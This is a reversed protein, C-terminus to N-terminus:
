KLRLDRGTEFKLLKMSGFRSFLREGYCDRIEKLTLNSIVICKRRGDCVIDDIIGTLMDQRSDTLKETGLEDLVLLDADHVIEYLKARRDLAREDDGYYLLTQMLLPASIYVAFWGKRILEAATLSALYTKGSGAQGYMFLSKEEEFNEAFRRAERLNASMLGRDEEDFVNIDFAEFGKKVPLGSESLVVDRCVTGFCGCIKQAGNEGEYYGKDLCKPCYHCDDPFTEDFGNQKLLAARKAGLEELEALARSYEPSGTRRRLAMRVLSLGTKTIESEVAGFGPARENIEKLISEKKFDAEKRREELVREAASAIEERRMM